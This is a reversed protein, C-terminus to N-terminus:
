KFEEKKISAYPKGDIRTCAYRGHRCFFSTLHHFFRDQDICDSNYEGQLEDAPGRSERLIANM